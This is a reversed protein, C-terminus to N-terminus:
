AHIWDGLCIRRQQAMGTFDFVGKCIDNLFISSRYKQILHIEEVSETSSLWELSILSGKASSGGLSLPSSTHTHKCTHCVCLPHCPFSFNNHTHKCTNTHKLTYSHTYTHTHTQTHTLPHSLLLSPPLFLLCFTNTRMHSKIPQTQTTHQIHPVAEWMCPCAFECVYLVFSSFVCM